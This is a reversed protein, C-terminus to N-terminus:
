FSLRARLGAIWIRDEQPNLAPNVLLQLDPTVTMHPFLQLRYFLEATYQDDLGPGITQSSPRGWNLGFGILDAGQRAFYGTGASVSRDVIAGGKAGDKNVREGSM